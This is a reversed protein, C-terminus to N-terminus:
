TVAPKRASGAHRREHGGAEPSWGYAGHFQKGRLEANWNNAIALDIIMDLSHKKSRLDFFVGPKLFRVELHAASALCLVAGINADSAAEDPENLKANIKHIAHGKLVYCEAKYAKPNMFNMHNVAAFAQAYLLTENQLISPM